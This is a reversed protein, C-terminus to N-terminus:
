VTRFAIFGFCGFVAVTAGAEAGFDAMARKRSIDFQEKRLKARLDSFRHIFLDGLGFLRIEKAYTGGTLLWNLYSAKREAQTRERKWHYMKGSYKLRVLVGPVAAAFLVLAVGWHFSFLLGVMAILSIGNQGFLVLNNVISTPRHPGEMQARHLTDYFQPNEYYALDMVISKAHLVNHVHDTVELSQAEKVLGSIMQFVANLLAVGIALAILMAVHRFAGAKDPATMAVTVGDVILKMVYLALLPLVGQLFVLALSAVTWGPGANWVFRVARDLRLAHRVKQKLSDNKQM